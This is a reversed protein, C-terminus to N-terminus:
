KAYITRGLYGYSAGDVAGASDIDGIGSEHIYNETQEETLEGLEENTDYDYATMTNNM